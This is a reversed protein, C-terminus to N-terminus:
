TNRPWEDQHGASVAAPLQHQRAWYPSHTINSTPANQSWHRRLTTYTFPHLIHSGPFMWQCNLFWRFSFYMSRCPHQHQECFRLINTFYHQDQSGTVIILRSGLTTHSNLPLTFVLNMKMLTQLEPRLSQEQFPLYFQFSYTGTEISSENSNFRVVNVYKLSQPWLLISLPCNRMKAFFIKKSPKNIQFPLALSSPLSLSIKWWNNVGM